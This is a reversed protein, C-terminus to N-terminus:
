GKFKFPCEAWVAAIKADLAAPDTVFDDADTFEDYAEDTALNIKDVWEVINRAKMESAPLERNEIWFKSHGTVGGCTVLEEREGDTLADSALFDARIKEAWEKQKATGRLAKGGYFKAIDRNAQAKKSVRKRTVPLSYRQTPDYHIGTEYDVWKGNEDKAPIDADCYWAEFNSRGM